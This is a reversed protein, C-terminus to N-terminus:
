AEATVAPRMSLLFYAGVALGLSLLIFWDGHETYVSQRGIWRSDRMVSTVEAGRFYIRDSEDRM